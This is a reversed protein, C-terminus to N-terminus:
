DKRDDESLMKENFEPIDKVLFNSVVKVLDQIHTLFADHGAPANLCFYSVRKKASFLAKTMEESQSPLFLWDGSLAVVLVKANIPSFAKPLSGYEAAMDFEDTARSIHLYSNADFRNIFKEGQHELYNAVEFNTRFEEANPFNKQKAIDRRRRGFKDKMMENSIYTVHALKRAQSLGVDPSKGDDYYDGNRWNPDNVIAERGIIDFALAQTTLSAGSAIVVANEVFDPYRTIFDLVQMGGFSGGVIAYLKKIGLQDLLLKHVMVIDSITLEPFSSGYPKGTDPNISSPGTTGMCGGLVNACVVYFRDTDIGGGPCVMNSWWGTLKTDGAHWGAVHADGTLAHAIFIVNDCEPSLTGCTEYAVNIEKLVGGHKLTFGKEPLDLKLTRTETLLKLDM